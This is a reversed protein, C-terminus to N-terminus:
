KAADQANAEAANLTLVPLAEAAGGSVYTPLQGNWNNVQTFQILNETLSQAIKQNAEAEAEAKVKTSYAEADANIKVVEAKADAEIKQRQAQQQTEMTKQEQEIEAQLKRQAAVQKAEVADTFADTFDINEISVSIISIGYREMEKSLNDRIQISLQERASVLNEATYKSFVAKTNELMRPNVLKSFYDTGVEKFLTMATAKNIAYNISGVIDVQQIDSSFAQTSFPTKQERNDMLIIEQFPSKMHFGAELTYDEVKGFTTVIATYGTDIQVTCRFFIILAALIVIVALVLAKTGKPSATKRTNVPTTFQSMAQEEKHEKSVGPREAATGQKRTVSVTYCGGPRFPLPFSEFICFHAEFTM